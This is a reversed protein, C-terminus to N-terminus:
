KCGVASLAAAFTGISLRVYPLSPIVPVNAAVKDETYQFQKCLALSIAVFAHM